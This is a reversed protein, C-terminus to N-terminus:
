EATYILNGYEDTIDDPKDYDISDLEANTDPMYYWATYAKGDEDELPLGVWNNPCTCQMRNIHSRYIIEADGVEKYTKGNVEFNYM